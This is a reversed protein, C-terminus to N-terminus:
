TTSKQEPFSLSTIKHLREVQNCLGAVEAFQWYYQYHIAKCLQDVAEFYGDFPYVQKEPPLAGSWSQIYEALSAFKEDKINISKAKHMVQHASTLMVDVLTNITPMVQEHQEDGSAPLGNFIHVYRKLDLMLPQLKYISALNELLLDLVRNQENSLLQKNFMIREYFLQDVTFLAKQKVDLAVHLSDIESQLTQIDNEKLDFESLDIEIGSQLYAKAVTMQNIQLLLANFADVDESFQAQRQRITNMCHIHDESKWDVPSTLNLLRDDCRGNFFKQYSLQLTEKREDDKMLIHNAVTHQRANRIGMRTYTDLTVLECLKDISKVLAKAPFDANFIGLDNRENIHQIRDNDAPHSDCPSTEGEQMDQIIREEVIEDLNASFHVTALPINALLREENWSDRNIKAVTKTAYSLKRINLATKEFESSGVFQSEYSDADYEMQRSMSQTLRYNLNYLIKFILRTMRITQKAGFISLTGAFHFDAKDSWADLRTDWKDPLYARHYFWFNIRNIVYYVKMATPQAFHGFEHALIGSFQRVNLGLLLPLGITLRLKKQGLSFYGFMAGASANVDTNLCIQEPFPVSMKECMVDILNYLAPADKRHMEFFTTEEYSIFFPRILFLVLVAMIFYPVITLLLSASFSLFHSNNALFGAYNIAAYFVALIILLYILPAALSAGLARLLSKRYEASIESPAIDGNLLKEFDEKQQYSTDADVPPAIPRPASAQDADHPKLVVKLGFQSFHKIFKEALEHSVNKLLVSDKKVLRAAKQESIKFTSIMNAVVQSEEFGAELIGTSIVSLAKM